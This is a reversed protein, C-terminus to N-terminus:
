VIVGRKIRLNKWISFFEVAEGVGSDPDAYGYGHIVMGDGVARNGLPLAFGIQFDTLISVYFPLLVPAAISADGNGVPCKAASTLYAKVFPAYGGRDDYRSKYDAIDSAPTARLCDLESTKGPIRLRFCRFRSLSQTPAQSLYCVRLGPPAGQLRQQYFRQIRGSPQRCELGPNRLVEVAAALDDCASLLDFYISASAPGSSMVVMFAAVAHRALGIM